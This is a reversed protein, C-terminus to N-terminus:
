ESSRDLLPFHAGPMPFFTPRNFCLLPVAQHLCGGISSEPNQRSDATKYFRLAKDQDDVMVSSLKIRM